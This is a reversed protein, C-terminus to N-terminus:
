AVLKFINRHDSFPFVLPIGSATGAIEYWLNNWSGQGEPQGRWPALNHGRVPNPGGVLGGSTLDYPPDFFSWSLMVDMVLNALGVAANNGQQLEPPIPSEIPRMDYGEFKLTGPPKNFLTTTNVTQLAADLNTADGRGGLSRLGSLPVRKWIYVLDQKSLYTPFPAAFNTPVPGLSPGNIGTPNGSRSDTGSGSQVFFLTNADASVFETKPKPWGELFREWEPRPGGLVAYQDTTADDIM